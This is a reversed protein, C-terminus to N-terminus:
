RHIRERRRQVAQGRLELAPEAPEEWRPWESVRLPPLGLGEPNVLPERDAAHRAVARERLLRRRRRLARRHLDTDRLLGSLRGAAGTVLPMLRRRFAVALTVGAIVMLWLLAMVAAPPGTSGAASSSAHAGPLTLAPTKAQPAPRATSGPRAAGSPGTALGEGPRAAASARLAQKRQLIGPLFAEIGNRLAGALGQRFSPQVLLSADHPNTDFLPEITAVPMPPTLWWTPRSVLGGDRCGYLGIYAGAAQDIATAFPIDRPYPYLVVSGEADPTYWANIYIALFVNAHADICTAARQAISVTEDTTRTLVVTAGDGRLLAALRDSIDLTLDKEVLGDLGISGPDSGGHGVDLCVVSPPPIGAAAAAPAGVLLAATVLVAAAAPALVHLLRARPM